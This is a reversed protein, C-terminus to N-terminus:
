LLQVWVARSSCCHRVFAWLLVLWHGKCVAAPGAGGVGVFVRTHSAPSAHDRQCAVSCFCMLCCCCRCLLLAAAAPPAELPAAAPPLLGWCGAPPETHTSGCQLPVDLPVVFMHRLYLLPEHALRDGFGLGPLCAGTLSLLLCCVRCSSQVVVWIGRGWGEGWV